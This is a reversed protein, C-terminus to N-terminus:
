PTNPPTGGRILGGGDSDRHFQQVNSNILIGSVSADHTLIQNQLHTAVTLGIGALPSPLSPGRYLFHEYGWFTYEGRDVTGATYPHGDFELNNLGSNVTAADNIGLYGIFWTNAVSNPTSLAGAVGAGGFYGSDGVPYSIGNVTAAPWLAISTIPNGTPQYQQVFTNIGYRSDAL